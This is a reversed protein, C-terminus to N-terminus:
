KIIHRFTLSIREGVGEQKPIAHLWEQQVADNMYLLAGPKLAYQYILERDEKNKYSILREAGLSIIAVGTGKLLEESSDSHYGMSSNGNPYFNLLCNNPLYGLESNIKNCIEILNPHMECEPYTIGSYDYSVGFSATKRARMREDWDTTDRLETFLNNPNAVFNEILQIEPKNM